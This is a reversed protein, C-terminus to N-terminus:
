EGKTPISAVVVDIRELDRVHRAGTFYDADSYLTFKGEKLAVIVKEGVATNFLENYSFAASYGDAASAIIVIRNREKKGASVINAGELLKKLRVGRITKPESKVAASKCVLAINEFREPGLKEFAAPDWSAPHEVSGGLRVAAAGLQTCLLAAAILRKM